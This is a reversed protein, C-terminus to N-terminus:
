RGRRREMEEMRLEFDTRLYKRKARPYKASGANEMAERAKVARDRMTKNAWWFVFGFYLASMGMVFLLSKSIGAKRTEQTTEEKSATEEDIGYARRWYQREKEAREEQSAGYYSQQYNKYIRDDPKPGPPRPPSYDYTETINIGMNLKRDYERKEHPKSLIKYAENLRIFNNNSERTLRNRDPHVEKCLRLYAKKIQDATATRPIQLVEYHTQQAM